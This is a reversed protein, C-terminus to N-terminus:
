RYATSEHAQPAEPEEKMETPQVPTLNEPPGEEPPPLPPEEPEMSAKIEAFEAAFEERFKAQLAHDRNLQGLLAALSQACGRRRDGAEPSPDAVGLEARLNDAMNEAQLAFLTSHAQAWAFAVSSMSSLCMRHSSSEPGSSSRVFFSLCVARASELQRAKLNDAGINLIARDIVQWRAM